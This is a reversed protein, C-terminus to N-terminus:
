NRVTSVLLVFEIIHDIHVIWVSFMCLVSTYHVDYDLIHFLKYVSQRSFRYEVRSATQLGFCEVVQSGKVVNSFIAERSSLTNSKRHLRYQRNVYKCVYIM